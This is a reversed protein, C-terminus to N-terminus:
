DHMRDHEDYGATSFALDKTVGKIVSTAASYQPAFRTRQARGDERCRGRPEGAGPPISEAAMGVSASM